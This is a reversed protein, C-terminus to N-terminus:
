DVSGFSERVNAHEDYNVLMNQKHFIYNLKNETFYEIRQEYYVMQNHLLSKRKM